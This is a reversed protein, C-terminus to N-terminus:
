RSQGLMCPPLTSRWTSLVESIKFRSWFLVFLLYHCRENSRGHKRELSYLVVIRYNIGHIQGVRQISTPATSSRYTDVQLTLLYSKAVTLPSLRNHGIKFDERM